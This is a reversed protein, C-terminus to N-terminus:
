PTVYRIAGHAQPNLIANIWMASVAGKPGGGGNPLASIQPSQVDFIQLYGLNVLLADVRTGAALAADMKQAAATRGYGNDSTAAYTTAYSASANLMELHPYVKVQGWSGKYMTVALVIEGKSADQTFRRLPVSHSATTDGVTQTYAYNNLVEQYDPSVFMIFNSKQRKTAVAISKLLNRLDTETVAAATSSSVINTTPAKAASPITLEVPDYTGNQLWRLFGRTMDVPKSSVTERYSDQFGINIKEMGLAIAEMAMAASEKFKDQPRGYNRSLKAARNGVGYAERTEVVRGQLMGFLSEYNQLDAEVVDVGDAIPTVNATPRSQFPWEPTSNFVGTKKPAMMTYPTDTAYLKMMHNSVDRVRGGSDVLSDVLRPM